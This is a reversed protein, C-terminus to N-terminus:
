AETPHEHLLLPTSGSVSTRLGARLHDTIGDQGSGWPKWYPTTNVDVVYYDSGDHMLDIAGVDLATGELFTHLTNVLRPPLSVADYGARLASRTTFTNTRDLDSRLKKIPESCVAKSVVLHEGAVYVRYFFDADNAVYREVVLGRHSWWAKPVEKRRMVPYNQAGDFPLLGPDLGLRRRDTGSLRLEFQAGYNFDTKVMVWEDPPGEPNALTSPLELRLLREQLARKRIDPFLRNWVRIGRRNLADILVHRDVPVHTTNSLNVHVLLGTAGPPISALVDRASEGLRAPLRYANPVLARILFHEWAAWEYIVLM